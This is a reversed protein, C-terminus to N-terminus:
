FELAARVNFSQVNGSTAGQPLVRQGNVYNFQIKVNSNWYWNLGITSEGYRGGNVTGDNLDVYGFRYAIEWAGLGYALNGNEDRVLFFPEFPKVRDYKGFRRDYGRQEGTLFYGVAAYAGNFTLNGQRKGSANVPYVANEVQNTTWEAQAWVPGAYALYEFNLSQVNDAIIPGTDIVRNSDGQLGVADRVGPRVRFRVLDSNLTVKNSPLTVITGGNFDAPTSGNRIQYSAGLHLLYRGEDEYIPLGSIRGTFAYKGDGFSAGNFQNFYDVRHFMQQSTIRQDLFNENFFIGPAFEQYFADFAASRENFPQFRSSTYAELGFPVHVQGLRIADFFPLDKVGVYSEDFLLSNYNEFDAEFKFEVVQYITGDGVLRARRVFFGDQLDGIGDGVGTKGILPSKAALTASRRLFPSQDWWVGDYMLRGGFHVSFAEDESKFRLGGWDWTVNLKLDDGVVHGAAAKREAEAKKAAEVEALKAKVRDDILKELATPQLGPTPATPAASPAPTSKPAGTTPAPAPPSTNQITVITPQGPDAFSSAAPQAVPAPQTAAPTPQGVPVSPLRPGSATPAPPLNYPFLGQGGDTTKPASQGYAVASGITTALSTALLTAAWRRTRM